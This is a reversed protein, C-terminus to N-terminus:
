LLLISLGYSLAEVICADTSTHLRATVQARRASEEAAQPEALAAQEELAAKDASDGPVSDKKTPKKKGYVVKKPAPKEADDGAVRAVTKSGSVNAVTAQGHGCCSASGGWLRLGCM